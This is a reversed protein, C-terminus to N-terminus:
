VGNKPNSKGTLSLRLQEVVRLAEPVHGADAGRAISLKELLDAANDFAKAFLSGLPIRSNGIVSVTEIILAQLALTEASLSAIKVHHSAVTRQLAELEDMPDSVPGGWCVTRKANWPGSQAVGFRIPTIALWPLGRLVRSKQSCSVSM